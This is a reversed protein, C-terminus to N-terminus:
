GGATFVQEVTGDSVKIPGSVPRDWILRLRTEAGPEVYMGAPMRDNGREGRVTHFQSRTGLIAGDRDTGSLKLQGESLYRWDRGPNRLTVFAELMGDRAPVINDIRLDFKSLPKFAGGGAPPAPSASPNADAGSADFWVAKKDSQRISVTRLPGHVEPPTITFRGKLEGDAPLTMGAPLLESGEATARYMQNQRVSVGDSDTLQVTLFAATSIYKEKGSKNKVTVFVNVAGDRAPAMQDVRVDFDDLAHVV